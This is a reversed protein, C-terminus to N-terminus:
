CAVVLSPAIEPLLFLFALHLITHNQRMPKMTQSCTSLQSLCPTLCSVPHARERLAPTASCHIGPSFFRACALNHHATHTIQSQLPLMPQRKGRCNNNSERCFCAAYQLSLVAYRLVPVIAITLKRKMSGVTFTFQLVVFRRDRCHLGLSQQQSCDPCMTYVPSAKCRRLVCSSLFVAAVLLKGQAFASNAMMHLQQSRSAYRQMPRDSVLLKHEPGQIDSLAHRAPSCPHLNRCGCQADTM